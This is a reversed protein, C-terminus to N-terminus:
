NEFEYSVKTDVTYVRILETNHVGAARSKDLANWKRRVNGTTYRAVWNNLLKENNLRINYHATSTILGNFPLAIGNCARLTGSPQPEWIELCEACSPPLTKLGVFRGGNDGLFYRQYENTNATSEVGPDYHPRFPQWHFIGNVCDPVSGAVKRSTARHRLWSCWRTGRDIKRRCRVGSDRSRDWPLKHPVQPPRLLPDPKQGLVDTKGRDNDNWSLELSM